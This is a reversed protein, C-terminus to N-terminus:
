YCHCCLNLAPLSSVFWFRAHMCAYRIGHISKQLVCAKSALPFRISLTATANKVNWFADSASKVTLSSQLAASRINTPVAMMAVEDRM